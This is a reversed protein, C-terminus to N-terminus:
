RSRIEIVETPVRYNGMKIFLECSGYVGRTDRSTVTYNRKSLLKDEHFFLVLHEDVEFLTKCYFWEEVNKEFDSKIPSGMINEVQTKTMGISLKYSLSLDQQVGRPTTVCSTLTILFITPIILKKLEENGKHTFNSHWMVM